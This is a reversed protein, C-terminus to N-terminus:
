DKIELEEGTLAFYLNQLQHVHEINIVEGGHILVIPKGFYTTITLIQGNGQGGIDWDRKHFEKFGMRLLWEETLPIGSYKENNQVIMVIDSVHNVRIAKEYRVHKILVGLRLENENIM